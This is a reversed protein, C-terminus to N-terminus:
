SQRQIWWKRTRLKLGIIVVGIQRGCSCFLTQERRRSIGELIGDNAQPIPINLRRDRLLPVESDLVLKRGRGRNLSAIQALVTCMQHDGHWIELALEM